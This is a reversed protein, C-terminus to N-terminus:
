LANTIRKYDEGFEVKMARLLQSASSGKRKAPKKSKDPGGSSSSSRGINRSRKLGQRSGSTSSLRQNQKLKQTITEPRVKPIASSSSKKQLQMLRESFSISGTSTTRSELPIFSDKDELKINETRAKSEIGSDTRAEKLASFLGLHQVEAPKPPQPPTVSVKKRPRSLLKFDNRLTEEDVRKRMSKGITSRSKKSKSRLAKARKLKVAIEDLGLKKTNNFFQVVSRLCQGFNKSVQLYPRLWKSLSGRVDSRSYRPDCLIIAGFDDKHRITRGMAQNVAVAAQILYWRDGSMANKAMKMRQSAGESVRGMIGGSRAQDLLRKKLVVRLDYSSPYPFGVILVARAQRDSFDMGESSKGRCVAM